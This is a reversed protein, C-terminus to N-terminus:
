RATELDNMDKPVGRRVCEGVSLEPKGFEACADLANSGTDYTAWMYTPKVRADAGVWVWQLGQKKFFYTQSGPNHGMAISKSPRPEMDDDWELGPIRGEAAAIRLQEAVLKNSWHQQETDMVREVLTVCRQSLKGTNTIYFNLEHNDPDQEGVYVVHDHICENLIDLNLELPEEALAHSAIFSITLAGLLTHIHFRPQFYKM